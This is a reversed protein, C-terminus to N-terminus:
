IIGFFDRTTTEPIDRIVVAAIPAFPDSGFAALKLSM